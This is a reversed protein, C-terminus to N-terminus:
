CVRLSRLDERYPRVQPRRRRVLPQRPRATAFTDHRLRSRVPYVGGHDDAFHYPRGRAQLYVFALLDALIVSARVRRLLCRTPPAGSWFGNRLFPSACSPAPGGRRTTFTDRAASRRPHPSSCRTAASARQKGDLRLLEQGRNAGTLFTILSPRHSPAIALLFASVSNDPENLV